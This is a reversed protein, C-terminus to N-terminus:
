RIQQAVTESMELKVISTNSQVKMVIKHAVLNILPNGEDSLQNFRFDYSFINANKELVDTM